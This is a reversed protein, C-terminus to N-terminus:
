LKPARYAGRRLKDKERVKGPLNGPQGSTMFPRLVKKNVTRQIIPRNGDHTGCDADLCGTGHFSIEADVAVKILRRPFVGPQFRHFDLIGRIGVMVPVLANGGLTIRGIRGGADEVAFAVDYFDNVVVGADAEIKPWGEEGPHLVVRGM